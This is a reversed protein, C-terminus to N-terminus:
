LKLCDNISFDNKDLDVDGYYITALGYGAAIIKKVPWRSSRVGRSAETAKNDNIGFTANNRLWSKPLVIAPDEIVSQNGYFNYGVFFSPGFSVGIGRAYRVMAAADIRWRNTKGEDEVNTIDTNIWELVKEPPPEFDLLFEQFLM